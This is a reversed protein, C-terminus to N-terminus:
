TKALSTKAQPVHLQPAQKAQLKGIELTGIVSKRNVM